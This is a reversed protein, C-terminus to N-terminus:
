KREGVIGRQEVVSLEQKKQIGVQGLIDCQRKDENAWEARVCVCVFRSSKTKLIRRTLYISFSHNWKINNQTKSVTIVNWIQPPIGLELIMNEVINTNGTQNHQSKCAWLSNIIPWHHFPGPHALFPICRTAGASLLIAPNQKVITIRAHCTRESKEAFFTRM